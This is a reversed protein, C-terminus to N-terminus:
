HARQGCRYRRVPQPHRGPDGPVGGGHLHGPLLARGRAAPAPGPERRRRRCGCLPRHPWGFRLDPRRHRWAAYASRGLPFNAFYKDVLKEDLEDHVQRHAREAPLLRGRVANAVAYYLDDLSARHALDLQGAAFQAQGEALLQKAEHFLELAPRQDLQAWTARMDRLVAPEGSKAPAVAGPPLAEVESVNVVMVAHHATMARGAETLIHPAPLGAARTADALAQ